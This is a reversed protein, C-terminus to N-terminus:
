LFPILTTNARKNAPMDVVFVQEHWYRIILRVMCANIFTVEVLEALQEQTLNEIQIVDPVEEAADANLITRPFFLPQPRTTAHIIAGRAYRVAPSFASVRPSTRTVFVACACLLLLPKM